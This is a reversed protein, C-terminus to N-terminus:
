PRHDGKAGNGVPTLVLVHRVGGAGATPSLSIRAFGADGRRDVQLVKAVPLGPPYIGDVGSTTMLDGPKVDDAAAVFRLEMGGDEGSGFAASRHQTRANLVPIAADKDVLLTV